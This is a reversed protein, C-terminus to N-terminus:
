RMGRLVVKAYLVKIGESAFSIRAALRGIKEANDDRTLVDDVHVGRQVVCLAGHDDRWSSLTVLKRVVHKVEEDRLRFLERLLITLRTM